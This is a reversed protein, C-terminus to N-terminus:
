RFVALGLRREHERARAAKDPEGRLDALESYRPRAKRVGAVVEPTWYGPAEEEARAADLEARLRFAIWEPDTSTRWAEAAVIVAAVKLRSDDPLEHWETSGYAPLDGGAADIRAAAWRLREPLLAPQGQNGSDESTPKPPKTAASTESLGTGTPQPAPRESATM